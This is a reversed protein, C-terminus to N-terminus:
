LDISWDQPFTLDSLNIVKLNKIHLFKAIKVYKQISFGDLFKDYLVIECFIIIEVDFLM